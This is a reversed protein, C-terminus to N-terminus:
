FFRGSLKMLAPKNSLIISRGEMTVLEDKKFESLTRILSETATGAVAALDDRSAKVTPHDNEVEAGPIFHLLADAVRERVSAYALRLLREEKEHVEGALLRIFLVAADRDRELLSTFKEKPILILECDDLTQAVETRNSDMLIDEHGFFDGPGCVDTVLEKGWGDSRFCKVRGKKIFYLYHVADDIQYVEVKGPINRVKEDEALETLLSERSSKRVGNEGTNNIFREKKEFRATVADLLELEEFPKVLYDDAGLSMGRRRDSKEAKATLFIFPIGATAPDQSLIRLVGYGDLEPMMIDCIILDPSEDRAQKVGEKGNAAEVVQYGALELIEMLNERVDPHDEVILIKKM